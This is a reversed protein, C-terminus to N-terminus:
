KEEKSPVVLSTELVSQKGWTGPIVPGSRHVQSLVKDRQLCLRMEEKSTRHLIAKQKLLIVKLSFSFKIFAHLFWSYEM